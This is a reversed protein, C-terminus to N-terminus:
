HVACHYSLERCEILDFFVNSIRQSLRKRAWIRMERQSGARPTTPVRSLDWRSGPLRRRQDQEVWEGLTCMEKQRYAGALEGLM